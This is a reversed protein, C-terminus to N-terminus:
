HTESHLCTMSQSFQANTGITNADLAFRELAGESLSCIKKITYIYPSPTSYDHMDPQFDKTKKGHHHILNYLM